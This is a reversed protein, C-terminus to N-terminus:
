KKVNCNPLMKGQPIGKKHVIKLQKDTKQWFQKRFPDYVIFWLTYSDTSLCFCKTMENVFVVNANCKSFSLCVYYIM